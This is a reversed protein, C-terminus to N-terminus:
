PNVTGANTASMPLTRWEFIITGWTSHALPNASRGPGENIIPEFRAAAAQALAYDDAAKLGSPSLLVPVSVPVGDGNIFLKVITNTLFDANPWAPLKFTTKLRRQQLGAALRFESKQRFSPALITDSPTTEPEFALFPTLLEPQNSQPAAVGTGLQNMHLLQWNSEETWELARSSVAEGARRSGALSNPVPPIEMWAPGSFGARHPLAFLTPDTLAIIERSSNDALALRPAPSAPRVRAPSKEGLWSILGIQVCFTLGILVCWRRWTWLRPEIALSTM